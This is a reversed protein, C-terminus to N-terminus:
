RGTSYKINDNITYDKLIFKTYFNIIISLATMLQSEQHRLKHVILVLRQM